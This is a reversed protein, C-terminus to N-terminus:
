CANIPAPPSKYYREILGEALSTPHTSATLAVQLAVTYRNKM